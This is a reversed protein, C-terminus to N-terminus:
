KGFGKLVDDFPVPKLGHHEVSVNFYRSDNVKKSHIHCHANYKETHDLCMENVPYHSLLVNDLRFCGGKIEFYKLYEEMPHRDHNGLILHKRGNLRPLYQFGTKPFLVDGLHYVIDNVGVVSNWSNVLFEDHEEITSFNRASNEFIIINKHSFHTCGTIFINM